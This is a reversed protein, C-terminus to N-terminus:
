LLDRQKAEVLEHLYQALPIGLAQSKELASGLEEDTVKGRMGRKGSSYRGKKPAVRAVRRCNRRKMSEM